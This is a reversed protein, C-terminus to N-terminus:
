SSRTVSGSCCGTSISQHFAGDASRLVAVFPNNSLKKRTITVHKGALTFIVKYIKVVVGGKHKHSPIKVTLTGKVIGGSVCEGPVSLTARESEFTTTTSVAGAGKASTVNTATFPLAYETEAVAYVGM